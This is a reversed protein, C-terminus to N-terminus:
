REDNPQPTFESNVLGNDNAARDKPFFLVVLGCQM